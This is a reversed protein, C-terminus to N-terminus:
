LYYTTRPLDMEDIDICAFECDKRLKWEGIGAFGEQLLVRYYNQLFYMVLVLTDVTCEKWDIQHKILFNLGESANNTIGSYPNFVGYNELIWRGSYLKIDPIISKEFYSVIPTSWFESIKQFTATFEDESTCNM